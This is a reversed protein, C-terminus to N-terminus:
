FTTCYKGGPYGAIALSAKKMKKKKKEQMSEQRDDDIELHGRALSRAVANRHQPMKFPRARCLPNQAQRLPKEEYQIAAIQASFSTSCPQWIIVV